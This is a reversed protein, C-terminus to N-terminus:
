PSQAARLVVVGDVSRDRVLRPIEDNRAPCFCIDLKLKGAESEMGELIPESYPLSRISVGPAPCFVVAAVGNKLRQGYRRAILARAEPVNLRLGRDRRRQALGAQTHLLLRDSEGPTLPM